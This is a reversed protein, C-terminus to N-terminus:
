LEFTFVSHVARSPPFLKATWPLKPGAIHKSDERVHPKQTPAHGASKSCTLKLAPMFLINYYYLNLLLM